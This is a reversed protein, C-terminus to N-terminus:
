EYTNPHREVWAAVSGHKVSIYGNGPIGSYDQYPAMNCEQCTPLIFNQRSGKVYIHAGVTPKNGCSYIKCYAPWDKKAHNMWFQKWSPAGPAKQKGSGVVHAVLDDKTLAVTDGIQWNSM